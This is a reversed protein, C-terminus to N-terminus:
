KGGYITNAAQQDQNGAQLDQSTNQGFFRSGVMETKYEGNTISHKVYNVYWLKKYDDEVQDQAVMIFKGPKRYVRGVTEFAITENLTIFSKLVKNYITNYVMVDTLKTMEPNNKMERSVKFKNAQYHNLIPLSSGLEPNNLEVNVFRDVLENFRVAEVSMVSPDMSGGDVIEYHGWIKKKLQAYDPRTVNVKEIKNYMSTNAVSSTNSALPGTTFTELFVDDFNGQGKGTAVATIFEQHRNSIMPVYNMKRGVVSKDGMKVMTNMMRCSAVKGPETDSGNAYTTNKVCENIIHFVSDGESTHFIHPITVSPAYNNEQTAMISEGHMPSLTYYKEKNFSNFVDSITSYVKGRGDQEFLEWRTEKMKAVFAEEFQLIVLNEQVNSSATSINTVLASVRLQTDEERVTGISVLDKDIITIDVYLDDSSNTVINLQNLIKFKNNIVLTGTAGMQKVSEIINLSVISSLELPVSSDIGETITTGSADATRRMKVLTVDIDLNQNQLVNSTM